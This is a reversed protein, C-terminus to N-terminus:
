VRSLSIRGGMRGIEAASFILVAGRGWSIKLFLFPFPFSPPPPPFSFSSLHILMSFSSSGHSGPISEESQRVSVGGTRPSSLSSDRLSRRLSVEEDTLKRLGRASLRVTESGKM